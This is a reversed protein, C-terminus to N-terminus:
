LPRLSTFRNDDALCLRALHRGEAIAAHARAASWGLVEVAVRMRDRTQRSHAFPRCGTQYTLEDSYGAGVLLDYQTTTEKNAVM